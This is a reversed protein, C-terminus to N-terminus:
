RVRAAAITCVSYGREYDVRRDLSFHRGDENRLVFEEYGDIVSKGILITKGEVRVRSAVVCVEDGERVPFDVKELRVKSGLYVIDTKEEGSPLVELALCSKSSKAYCVEHVKVVRATFTEETDVDYYRGYSGIKGPLIDGQALAVSSWLFVVSLLLTVVCTISKM